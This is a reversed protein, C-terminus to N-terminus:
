QISCYCDPGFLVLCCTYKTVSLDATVSNSCAQCSTWLISHLSMSIRFVALSRCSLFRRVHFAGWFRYTCSGSSCLDLFVEALLWWSHSSSLFVSGWAEVEIVHVHTVRLNVAVSHGSIHHWSGEAQAWCMGCGSTIGGGDILLGMGMNLHTEMGVFLM